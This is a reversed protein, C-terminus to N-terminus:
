RASMQMDYDLDDDKDSHYDDLFQADADADAWSKRSRKKSTGEGGDAGGSSKAARKRKRVSGTGSMVEDGAVSATETGARGRPGARRGGRRRGSANSSEAPPAVAITSQAKAVVPEAGQQQASGQAGVAREARPGGHRGRPRTVKVGDVVRALRSFGRALKKATAGADGADVPEDHRDANAEATRLATVVDVGAWRGPEDEESDYDGPLMKCKIWADVMAGRRRRERSKYKRLEQMRQYLTYTIRERRSQEVTLQPRARTRTAGGSAPPANRSGPEPSVTQAHAHQRSKLLHSHAKSNSADAYAMAQRGESEAM